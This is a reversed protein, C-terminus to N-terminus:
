SRRAIDSPRRMRRFSCFSVPARSSDRPRSGLFPVETAAACRSSSRSLNKIEDNVQRLSISTFHRLSVTQGACSPSLLGASFPPPFLFEKLTALLDASLVRSAQRNGRCRVLLDGTGPSSTPFSGDWERAITKLIKTSETYFSHLVRRLRAFYGRYCRPGGGLLISLSIPLLQQRVTLWSRWVSQPSRSLESSV